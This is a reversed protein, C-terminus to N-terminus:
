REEKRTWNWFLGYVISCVFLWSFSLIMTHKLEYARTKILRERAETLCTDKEEQTREVTKEMEYKPQNCQEIEWSRSFIYEEDTIFVRSLLNYLLISSSIIIGILAAFRVLYRFIDAVRNPLLTTAM